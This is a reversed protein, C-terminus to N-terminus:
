PSRLALVVLLVVAFADVDVVGGPIGSTRYVQREGPLVPGAYVGDSHEM